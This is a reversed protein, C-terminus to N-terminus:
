DILPVERKSDICWFSVFDNPMCHVAHQVAVVQLGQQAVMHVSFCRLAILWVKRFDVVIVTQQNFVDTIDILRYETKRFINM